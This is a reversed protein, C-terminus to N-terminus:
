KRVLSKVKVKNNIGITKIDGNEVVHRNSSIIKSKKKIGITKIDSIYMIDDGNRLIM